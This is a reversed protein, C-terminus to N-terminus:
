PQSLNPIVEPSNLENWIQIWQRFFKEHNFLRISERANKSISMYQATSMEQFNNIGQELEETSNFLFGNYKDFVYRNNEPMDSSLVPIGNNMYQKAKIGSKARHIDTNLLTAIGVDLDLIEKQISEEDRWNVDLPIHLQIDDFDQFEAQIEKKTKEKKVGLLTLKVTFSLNKIAPFLLTELAIQHDGGYDGIWGINLIPNKKTKVQGLDLVPSTTHIIRSNLTALHHMIEASGASIASCSRAFRYILNPDHELYDADDIDYICHDPRLTALLFLLASYLSRRHIRQIVIMSNKHPLFLASVYAKIFRCINQISRGPIVLTSDIRHQAKFYKLPYHARYRVSPSDLNYFAFWYIFKLPYNGTKLSTFNPHAQLKCPLKM